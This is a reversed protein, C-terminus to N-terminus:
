REGGTGRHFREREMELALEALHRTVEMDLRAREIQVDLRRQAAHREVAVHQQWPTQARRETGRARRGLIFSSLLCSVMFTGGFVLILNALLNM